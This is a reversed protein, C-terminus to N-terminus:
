LVAGRVVEGIAFELESKKQVEDSIIMKFFTLGTECVLELTTNAKPMDFSINYIQTDQYQTRDIIMRANWSNISGDLRTFIFSQKGGDALGEITYEFRICQKGSYVRNELEKLQM